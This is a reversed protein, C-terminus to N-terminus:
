KNMDEVIKSIKQSSLQKEKPIILWEIKQKQFPSEEIDLVYEGLSKVQNGHISYNRYTRREHTTLHIVKEVVISQLYGVIGAMSMFFGLVILVIWYNM